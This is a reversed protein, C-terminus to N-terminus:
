KYIDGDEIKIINVSIGARIVDLMDKSFKIYNM